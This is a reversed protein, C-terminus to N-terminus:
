KTRTVIFSSFILTIVSTRTRLFYKINRFFGKRVWMRESCKTTKQSRQLQASRQSGEEGSGKSLRLHRSWKSHSTYTRFTTFFLSEGRSWRLENSNSLSLGDGGGIFINNTKVVWTFLELGWVVDRTFNIYYFIIQGKSRVKLIGTWVPALILFERFDVVPITIDNCGGM